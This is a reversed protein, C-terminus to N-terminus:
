RFLYEACPGGQFFRIVYIQEVNKVASTSFTLVGWIIQMCPFWIRPAVIQLMLNNPIMGVIYGCTFITNIKNFQTGFMQLDERMGSVYANAVNSRDLYNSFYMLCCYSLIFWDIKALLTREQATSPKKGVVLDLCGGVNWRLM